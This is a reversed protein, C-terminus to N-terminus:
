SCFQGGRVSDQWITTYKTIDRHKLLEKSMIAIDRASTYHNDTDLGNSNIFNTNNM